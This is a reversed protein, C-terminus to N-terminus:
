KTGIFSEIMEHNEEIIRYGTNMGEILDKQSFHALDIPKIKKKSRIIVLEPLSPNTERDRCYNYIMLNTLKNETIEAARSMDEIWNRPPKDFTEKEPTYMLLFIVDCGHKVARHIPAHGLIAGDGRKLDENYPAGFRGPLRASLVVGQLLERLTNTKNSFVIENGSKMDAVIAEFLIDSRGIAKFDLKNRLLNELPKNSFISKSYLFEKILFVGMGWFLLTELASTLFDLKTSKCMADVSKKKLINIFLSTPFLAIVSAPASITWPMTFIERNKLNKITEMVAKSNTETWPLMSIGALAGASAGIIVDPKRLHERWYELAGCHLPLRMFTPALVLGVKKNGVNVTEIEEGLFLRDLM